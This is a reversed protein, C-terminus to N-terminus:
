ALDTYQSLLLKQCQKLLTQISAYYDSRSVKYALDTYQCLINIIVEASKTLLIQISAYYYSRSVKNLYPRYVPTNIVEASM